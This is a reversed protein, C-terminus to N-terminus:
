SGYKGGAIRVKRWSDTSKERDRRQTGAARRANPMRAATM